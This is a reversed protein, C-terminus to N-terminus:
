PSKCRPTFFGILDIKKCPSNLIFELAFASVRLGRHVNEHNYVGFNCFNSFEFIKLFSPNRMMNSRKQLSYVLFYNYTFIYAFNNVIIKIRSFKSLLNASYPMVLHCKKLATSIDTRSLKLGTFM